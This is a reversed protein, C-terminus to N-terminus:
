QMASSTFLPFAHSLLILSFVHVFLCVLVIFSLAAEGIAEAEAM